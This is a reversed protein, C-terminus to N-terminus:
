LNGLTGEVGHRNKSMENFYVVDESLTPMNTHSPRSVILIHSTLDAIHSSFGHAVSRTDVCM